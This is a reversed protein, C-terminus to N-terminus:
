GVVALGKRRMYRSQERQAEKEREEIERDAYREAAMALGLLEYSNSTQGGHKSDIRKRAKIYGMECLKKLHRQVTSRSVKLCRGLEALSPFPDRDKYWWHRILQMILGLDVSDIKLDDQYKLVVAPIAVWGLSWLKKGWKRENERLGDQKKKPKTAM